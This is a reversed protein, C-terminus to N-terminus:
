WQPYGVKSSVILQNETLEQPAPAMHAASGPPAQAVIPRPAKTLVVMAYLVSFPQVAPPGPSPRCGPSSNGSIRQKYRALKGGAPSSHRRTGARAGRLMPPKSLRPKQRCGRSRHPVDGGVPLGRFEQDCARDGDSPREVCRLRIQPASSLALVAAVPYHIEGKLLVKRAPANPRGGARVSPPPGAAASHGPEAEAVRRYGEGAMCRRKASNSADDPGEGEARALLSLRRLRRRTGLGRRARLGRDLDLLDSEAHEVTSRVPPDVELGRVGDRPGGVLFDTQALPTVVVFGVTLHRSSNVTGSAAPSRPGSPLCARSRPPGSPRSGRVRPSARPPVEQEVRHASGRGAIRLAVVDDPHRDLVTGGTTKSNSTSTVRDGTRCRWRSPPRLSTTTLVHM